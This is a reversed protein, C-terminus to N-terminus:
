ADDDMADVAEGAEQASTDVLPANDQEGGPATDMDVDGDGAGGDADAAMVTDPEGEEEEEAAGDDGEEGDGDGDGDDGDGGGPAGGGEGAELAAAAALKSRQRARGAATKSRRRSRDGARHPRARAGAARRQRSAAANAARVARQEEAAALAAAKRAEAAAAAPKKPATATYALLRRLMLPDGLELDIDVVDPADAPDVGAAAAVVAVAGTLSHPDMDRLGNALAKREESTLPQCLSGLATRAEHLAAEAAVVRRELDLATREAETAARATAAATVRATAKDLEAQCAATIDALKPAVTAAWRGESAEALTCAMIHVDSGPPNYRRANAFVLRIHVAVQDPHTYVGGAELGQKITGLDMPTQIVSHYDALGMKTADVPENFPWAWKHAMLHKVAALCQRSVVDSVRKVRSAELKALTADDLRAAPPPPGPPPLPATCPPPAAAAAAAIAAREAAASAVAAALTDVLASLEAVRKKVTLCRERHLAKAQAPTLDPGGPPAVPGHRQQAAALQQHDRTAATHHHHHHAVQRGGRPGAQAEGGGGGGAVRHGGHGVRQAKRPPEYAALDYAGHTGV